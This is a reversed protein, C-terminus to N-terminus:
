ELNEDIESIRKDGDGGYPICRGDWGDRFDKKGRIQHMVDVLPGSSDSVISRANDSAIEWASEEDEAQVVAVYTLEVNWFKAM